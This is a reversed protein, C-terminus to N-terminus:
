YNTTRVRHYPKMERRGRQVAETWLLNDLDASTMEVGHDSLKDRLLEVVYITSGRIEVEEPSGAVLEHTADIERALSSEYEFVSEDRFLQPLKYDAFATLARLNTFPRIDLLSFELSLDQCLIQARKYLGVRRDKYTAEDRYLPFLSFIIDMFEGVDGKSDQVLEWASKKSTLLGQGLERLAMQRQDILPIEGRGRFLQHTQASTMTSLWAADLLPAEKVGRLLAAVLGWYGDLQKDHADTVSWRAEGSDAWFCFNVSDLVVCWMALEEPSRSVFPRMEISTPLAFQRSAIKEVVRDVARDDIQVDQANEAIFRASERVDIM